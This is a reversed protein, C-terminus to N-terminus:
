DEGFITKRWGFRKLTILQKGLGRLRGNSFTPVKFLECFHVLFIIVNMTNITSDTLYDLSLSYGLESLM